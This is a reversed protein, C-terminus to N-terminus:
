PCSRPNFYGYNGSDAVAVILLKQGRACAVSGRFSVNQATAAEAVGFAGAVDAHKGATRMTLRNAGDVFVLVHLPTEGHGVEGAWGTISVRREDQRAIADISGKVTQSGKLGAAKIAAMLTRWDSIVSTALASVAASPPKAPRTLELAILFSAGLSLAGAIVIPWRRFRASASSSQPVQRHRAVTKGPIRRRAADGAGMM